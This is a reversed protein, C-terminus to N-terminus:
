GPLARNSLYGSILINLAAYTFITRQTEKIYYILGKYCVIYFPHIKLSVDGAYHCITFDTRALKPKSFRKHEKFTQYLKQAFTENTSRPFMSCLVVLLHTVMECYFFSFVVEHVLNNVMHYRLFHLFLYNFARKLGLVYWAEDLLAIIGGPKQM